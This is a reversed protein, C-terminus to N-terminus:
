RWLCVCDLASLRHPPRLNEIILRSDGCTKVGGKPEPRKLIQSPVQTEFITWVDEIRLPKLSSIRLAIWKKQRGAEEVEEGNRSHSRLGAQNPPITCDLTPMKGRILYEGVPHKGSLIM